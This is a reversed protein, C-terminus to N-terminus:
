THNAQAASIRNSQDHSTAKGRGFARPPLNRFPSGHPPQSANPFAARVGGRRKGAPPLNNRQRLYRGENQNSTLERWGASPAFAGPAPSQVYTSFHRRDEPPSRPVLSDPRFVALAPQQRVTTAHRLAVFLCPRPTLCSRRTAGRLSVYTRARRRRVSAGNRGQGAFIILGM